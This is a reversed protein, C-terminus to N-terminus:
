WNNCIRYLVYEKWSRAGLQNLEAQTICTPQLKIPRVLYVWKVENWDAQSM